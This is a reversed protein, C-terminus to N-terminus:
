FPSDSTVDITEGEYVFQLRHAHLLPRSAFYTSRFKSAYQRDVLIPHGMEALHVRIQHTRGTKPFCKLLTSDEYREIVEWHTIARDGHPGSGWIVQGHTRKKKYLLSDRVGQDQKVIGDVLALYEKEIQREKFLHMLDERVKRSKAFLLLGTTDKDLRHALFVDAGFTAKCNEESCVWNEPKDLIQLHENEFLLKWQVTEEEYPPFFEVMSGKELWVSGYREIHGDVRLCNLELLKRSQKNSGGIKSTLFAALKERKSVKWLTEGVKM